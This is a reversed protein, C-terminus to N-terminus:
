DCGLAEFLLGVFDAFANLSWEWAGEPPTRRVVRGRAEGIPKGRCPYAEFHYLLRRQLRASGCVFVDTSRDPSVVCWQQKPPWILCLRCRADEQDKALWNRVSWIRASCILYARDGVQLEAYAHPDLRHDYEDLVDKDLRFACLVKENRDSLVDCLEYALNPAYWNGIASPPWSWNQGKAAVANGDPDRTGCIDEWKAEPYMRAGNRRAVTAWQVPVAWSSDRPMAGDVRVAVESWAPYPLRTFSRFNEFDLPSPLKTAEDGGVIKFLPPLDCQDAIEVPQQDM